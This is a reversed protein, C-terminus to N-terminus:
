RAGSKPKEAEPDAAKPEGLKSAAEFAKDYTESALEYAKDMAQGAAEAAKKAAENVRSAAGGTLPDAIEAVDAAVESAKEAMNKMGKYAEDQISRNLEHLAAAADKLAVRAAAAQEKVDDIGEQNLKEDAM